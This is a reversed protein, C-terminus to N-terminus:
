ARVVRGQRVMFEAPLAETVAAAQDVQWDRQAFIEAVRVRMRNSDEKPDILAAELPARGEASKQNFVVEVAAMRVAEDFDKLFPLAAALAREDNRETLWVLMHRKKDPHNLDDKELEYNLLEYVLALTQDEGEVEEFLRIPYAFQRCSKLHVKLPRVLDKGRVALLQYMLERESQDQMQQPLTMDFRMLLARLAKASGQDILWRASMERDEPQADRNTVRRRNKQIRKDTSMFWELM